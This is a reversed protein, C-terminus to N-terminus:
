QILGIEILRIKEAPNGAKFWGGLIKEGKIVM